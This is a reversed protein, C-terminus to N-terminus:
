FDGLPRTFVYGAPGTVFLELAAQFDQKGDPTFLAAPGSMLAAPIFAAVGVPLVCLSLPRLIVLDFIVNATPPGPAEIPDQSQALAGAPLLLCAAVTAVQARVRWKTRQTM